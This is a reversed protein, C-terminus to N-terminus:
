KKPTSTTSGGSRTRSTGSTGSTSSGSTSSGSAPPKPEAKPQDGTVAGPGGSPADERSLTEGTVEGQGESPRITPDVPGGPIASVAGERTYGTVRGTEDFKTGGEQHAGQQEVESAAVNAPNGAPAAPAQDKPKETSSV